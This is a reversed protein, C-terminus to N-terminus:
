LSIGRKRKLKTFIILAIIIIVITIIIYRKHFAFSLCETDLGSWSTGGLVKCYASESIICEDGRTSSSSYCALMIDSELDHVKMNKDHFELTEVISRTFMMPGTSHVVTMHKGVCWSPVDKKMEELCQLMIMLGPRCAMFANTYATKVYYSKVVYLDHGSAFIADLPKVIELDLDMYIGGNVYLWMYRIADARQIPYKFEDYYKLFSPFKEKVFNRNDNDTMLVYKWNPMLKKVAEASSKWQKPVNRDKWTQMVIM